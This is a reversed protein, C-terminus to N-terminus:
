HSLYLLTPMTRPVVTDSAELAVCVRVASQSGQEDHHRESLPDNVDLPPVRCVSRGLSTIESLITEDRSLVALTGSLRSWVPPEIWLVWGKV